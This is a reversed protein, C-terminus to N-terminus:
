TSYEFRTRDRKFCTFTNMFLTQIRPELNAWVAPIRFHYTISILLCFVSRVSPVCGNKQDPHHYINQTSFRQVSRMLWMLAFPTIEPLLNRVSPADLPQQNESQLTPISALIAVKSCYKTWRVLTRTTCVGVVRYNPSGTSSVSDVSFRRLFYFKREWTSTLLTRLIVSVSYEEKRM